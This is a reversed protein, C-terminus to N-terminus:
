SDVSSPHLCLVDTSGVSGSLVTLESSPQPPSCRVQVRVQDGVRVRGAVGLLLAPGGAGATAGGAGGHQGVWRPSCKLPDGASSRAAPHPTTTTTPQIAALAELWGAGWAATPGWVGRAGAASEEWEGENGRGRTRGAHPCCGPRPTM